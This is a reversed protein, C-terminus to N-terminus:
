QKVFKSSYINNGQHLKVYYMGKPLEHVDLNISVQNPKIIRSLIISGSIDYLQLNSKNEYGKVKIIINDTTPNPYIFLGKDSIFDKTHEADRFMLNEQGCEDTYNTFVTQTIVDYCDGNDFVQPTTEVVREMLYTKFKNNYVFYIKITKVISSGEIIQKIFTKEVIDWVMIISSNKIIILNSTVNVEYGQNKYEELQTPNPYSYKLNYLFGYTRVNTNWVKYLENAIESYGQQLYKEGTRINTIYEGHDTKDIGGGTWGDPLYKSYEKFYSKIGTEDSRIISPHSYWKPFMNNHSVFIVDRTANGTENFFKHHKKVYKKKKFKLKDLISLTNLELDTVVSIRETFEEEYCLNDVYAVSEVNQGNLEFVILFLFLIKKM